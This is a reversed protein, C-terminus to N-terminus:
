RQQLACSSRLVEAEDEVGIDVREVNVRVHRPGRGTVDREGPFLAASLIRMCSGLVVEIVM